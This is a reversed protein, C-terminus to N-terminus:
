GRRRAILGGVLILIGASPEPVASSSSGTGDGWTDLLFNLEDNNVFPETFNNVWEAPVSGEGWNDLLLNLDTNNVEGSADFDGAFLEVDAGVFLVNGQVSEQGILSFELSLDTEDVLKAPDIAEGIDLSGGDKALFASGLLNGEGIRTTSGPSAQWGGGVGQSVELPVWGNEDLVGGEIDGPNSLILYSDITVDFESQNVLEASGTGRDVILTINNAISFEVDGTFVGNGPSSYTFDFTPEEEAFATPAFPVYAAGLDITGGEPLTLSDELAVESLVNDVTIMPDANPTGGEVWGPTSAGTLSSWTSREFLDAAADFLYGDITLASGSDNRLQTAGTRPNIVVSLDADSAADAPLATAATLMGCLMSALTFRM